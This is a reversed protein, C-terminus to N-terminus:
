KEPLTHAVDKENENCVYELVDVDKPALTDVVRRTVPQKFAGPDDYTMEVELHGLDLRRFRETVHLKETQPFSGAAWALDNFGVTDIALTDGEWHGISHGMWSPNFDKPHGRGDLYIQRDPH